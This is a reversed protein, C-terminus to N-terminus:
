IERLWERRLQTSDSWTQALGRDPQSYVFHYPMDIYVYGKDLFEGWKELNTRNYSINFNVSYTFDAVNDRWTLNAEFGRNRLTGLNAMPAEYAGTLLISMQSKQLM